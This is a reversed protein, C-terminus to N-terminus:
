QIAKRREKKRERRPFRLQVTGEEGRAGEQKVVQRNGVQKREGTEVKGEELGGVVVVAQTLSRIM